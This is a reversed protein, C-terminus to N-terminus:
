SFELMFPRLMQLIDKDLEGKNFVLGGAEVTTGTDQYAQKAQMFWRIAQRKCAAAILAPTSTSYGPIGTVRVSKRYRYWVAKDGNSDIVLRTIPKNNASYNYPSLIYDTTAWATYDTSSTGGQESVAVESIDAFPDIEQEDCGSGDYYRIVTDTTPYFFGNWVGFQADILRSAATIFGDMEPYDSSSYNAESMDAFADTSTSYINTM